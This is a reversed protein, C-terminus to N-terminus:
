ERSRLHGEEELQAQASSGEPVEYDLPPFDSPLPIFQAFSSWPNPVPGGATATPVPRLLWPLHGSSVTPIEM